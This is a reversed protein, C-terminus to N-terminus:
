GKQCKPVEIKRKGQFINENWIKWGDEVSGLEVLRSTPPRDQVTVLYPHYPLFSAVLVHTVMQMGLQQDRFTWGPILDALDPWTTSIEPSNKPFNNPAYIADTMHSVHHFQMLILWFSWEECSIQLFEWWNEGGPFGGGRSVLTGQLGTAGPLQATGDGCPHHRSTDSSQKQGRSFVRPFVRCFDLVGLCMENGLWKIENRGTWTKLLRPSFSYFVFPFPKQLRWSTTLWLEM